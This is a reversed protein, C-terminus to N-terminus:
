AGWHPPALSTRRDRSRLTGRLRACTAPRWDPQRQLALRRPRRRRRPPSPYRPDAAAYEPSWMSHPSYLDARRQFWPSTTAPLVHRSPRALGHHTRGLVGPQNRRGNLPAASFHKHTHKNGVGKHGQDHGRAKDPLIHPRVCERNSLVRRGGEAYEGLSSRGRGGCSHEDLLSHVVAM